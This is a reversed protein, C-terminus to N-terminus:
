GDLIVLIYMVVFSQYGFLYCLLPKKSKMLRGNKIICETWFFLLCTV